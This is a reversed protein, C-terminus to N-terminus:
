CLVYLNVFRVASYFLLSQTDLVDECISCLPLPLAMLTPHKITEIPRIVELQKDLYCAVVWETIVNVDMRDCYDICISDM